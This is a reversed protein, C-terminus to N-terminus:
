LIEASMGINYGNYKISGPEWPSQIHFSITIVPKDFPWSDFISVGIVGDRVVRGDMVSPLHLVFSILDRGLLFERFKSPVFSSAM